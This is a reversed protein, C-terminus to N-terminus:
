SNRMAGDVTNRVARGADDLAERADEVLGGDPTVGSRNVGDNAGASGNAGSVSGNGATGASGNAGAAGSQGASYDDGATGNTQSGGGCATLSFALLLSALLLMLTNKMPYEGKGHDPRGAGGTSASAPGAM